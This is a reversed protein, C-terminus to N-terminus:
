YELAINLYFGKQMTVMTANTKKNKNSDSVVDGGSGDGGEGCGIGGM